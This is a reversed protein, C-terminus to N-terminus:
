RLKAPDVQVHKIHSRNWTYVIELTGAASEIMAPYSFEGLEAELDQVKKWTKGDDTSRALSIPTRAIPLPNYILFVDGARTKVADIGASPNALETEEAPSFTEGGDKSEARCVKRPDDSRMLAVIRGDKAEFLTPQIQHMKGPVAFPNSRKWTKGDDTSRDVYPTWNRYSELSTGALITGDKRQIPKARVPGWFGAPMMEPPTWTKGGDKSTRVFGTWRDPKPGAKYWFYLTGRETKFLVPNWCPQGPESGIVAPESWAKGDFASSWIQVNKAGEADGGFWAALLKGPEYEVLTSAHCSKFPAKEFIFM